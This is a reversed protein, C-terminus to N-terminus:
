LLSQYEYIKERKKYALIWPSEFSLWKHEKQPLFKADSDIGCPTTDTHARTFACFSYGTSDAGILRGPAFRYELKKLM